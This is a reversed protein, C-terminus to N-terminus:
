LLGVFWNRYFLRLFVVALQRNRVLKVARDFLDRLCRYGLLLLLGSRHSLCLKGLLSGFSRLLCKGILQRSNGRRYDVCWTDGVKLMVQGRSAFLKGSSGLRYFALWAETPRQVSCGLLGSFVLSLREIAIAVM